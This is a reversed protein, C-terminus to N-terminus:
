FIISLRKVPYRLVAEGMEFVPPALFPYLKSTSICLVPLVCSGGCNVGVCCAGSLSSPSLRADHVSQNYEHEAKSLAQYLNPRSTFHRGTSMRRCVCRQIVHDPNSRYDM